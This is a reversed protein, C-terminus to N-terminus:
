SRDLLELFRAVQERGYVPQCLRAGKRFPRGATFGADRLWRRLRELEVEDRALLRVEWGKKYIRYHRQGLEGRREENPRRVYGHLERFARVLAAEAARRRDEAM